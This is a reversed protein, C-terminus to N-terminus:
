KGQYWTDPVLYRSIPSLHLNKKECGYSSKCQHPSLITAIKAHGSGKILVEYVNEEGYDLAYLHILRTRSTSHVNSKELVLINACTM